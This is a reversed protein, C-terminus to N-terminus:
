QRGGAMPNTNMTPSPDVDEDSSDDDDDDDESDDEHNRDIHPYRM